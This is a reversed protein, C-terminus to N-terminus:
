KVECHIKEADKLAEDMSRYDGVTRDSGWEVNRVLKFILGESKVYCYTPGHETAATYLFVALIAALGIGLAGWFMAISAERARHFWGGCTKCKMKKERLRQQLDHKERELDQIKAHASHIGSRYADNESM